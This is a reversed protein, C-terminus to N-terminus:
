ETGAVAGTTQPGDRFAPSSVTFVWDGQFWTNNRSLTKGTRQDVPTEAGEDTGNLAWSYVHFGGDELPLYSVAGGDPRCPDSPLANMYRPVLADLTEPPAGHALRYRAVACATALLDHSVRARFETGRARELAPLVVKPLVYLPHNSREIDRVLPTPHLTRNQAMEGYSRHAVLRSFSLVWDGSFLAQVNSGYGYDGMIEVSDSTSYMWEATLGTLFLSNEERPPLAHSIMAQM